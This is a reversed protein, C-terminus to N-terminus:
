YREEMDLDMESNHELDDNVSDNFDANDVEGDEIFIAHSTICSTTTSMVAFALLLATLLSRLKLNSIISHM